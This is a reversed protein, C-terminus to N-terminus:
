LLVISLAVEAIVLGERLRGRLPGTNLGRGAERLRADLDGSVAHLAPALGCLLTTLMTIGMAFLLVAPNLGIAASSPIAGEPIASVIGKLSGYALFWGLL